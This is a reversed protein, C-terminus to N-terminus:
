VAALTIIGAASGPVKLHLWPFLPTLCLLAGGLGIAALDPRAASETRTRPPVPKATAPDPGASEAPKAEDRLSTIMVPPLAGGPEWDVPVAAPPEVTAEPEHGVPRAAEADHVTPTEPPAEETPAPPPPTDSGPAGPAGPARIVRRQRPEDTSM